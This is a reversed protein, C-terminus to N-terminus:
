LLVNYYNTYHNNYNNYYRINNKLKLYYEYKRIDNYNTCTYRVM